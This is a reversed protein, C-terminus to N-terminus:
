DNLRAAVEPVVWTLLANRAMELKTNHKETLEVFFLHRILAGRGPLSVERGNLRHNVLLVLVPGSQVWEAHAARLPQYLRFNGRTKQWLVMLMKM